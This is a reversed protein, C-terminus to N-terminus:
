LRERLYVSWVGSRDTFSYGRRIGVSMNGPVDLRVGAGGDTIWGQDAKADRREWLRAEDAFVENWLSVSGRSYLRTSFTGQFVVGYRGAPGNGVVGDDFLAHGRLPLAYDGGRGVGAVVLEDPPAEKTVGQGQGGLALLFRSTIPVEFGARLVGRGFSPASDHLSTSYTVLSEAFLRSANAALKNLRAGIMPQLFVDRSFPKDGTTGWRMLQGMGLVIDISQSIPFASEWSLISRRISSPEGSIPDLASATEREEVRVRATQRSLVPWSMIFGVSAEAMRRDPVFRGGFGLSTGRGDLNKFTLHASGSAASGVSWASFRLWSSFPGKQRPVAVELRCTGDQGVIPTVSCSLGADRLVRLGTRLRGVDVPRDIELGLVSRLFEKNSGSTVFYDIDLLRPNDMNKWVPSSEMQKGQLYVATALLDRAEPSLPQPEEKLIRAAEAYDGEKVLTKAQSLSPMSGVYEAANLWAALALLFSAFSVARPFM